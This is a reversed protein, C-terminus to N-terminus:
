VATITPLTLHTYSVSDMSLTVRWIRASNLSEPPRFMGLTKAAKVPKQGVTRQNVPREDSYKRTNEPRRGPTSHRRRARRATPWLVPAPPWSEPRRASTERCPLPSPFGPECRVTSIGSVPSPPWFEPCTEVELTTLFQEFRAYLGM